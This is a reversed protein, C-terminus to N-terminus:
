GFYRYTGFYILCTLHYKIVEKLFATGLLFYTNEITQGYKIYIIMPFIRSYWEKLSSKLSNNQFLNLELLLFNLQLFSTVALVSAISQM